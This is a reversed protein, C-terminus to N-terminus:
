EMKRITCNFRDALYLSAGDTTTGVLGDFSAAAGTGDAFGLPGAPNGALTSVEGAAITIKRVTGNPSNPGDSVFLSTGDTTIGRRSAIGGCV